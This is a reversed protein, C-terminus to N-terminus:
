APRPVRAPGPCSSSRPRVRRVAAGREARVDGRAGASRGPVPQAAPFRAPPCRLARRRAGHLSRRLRRTRQSVLTKTDASMASPGGLQSISSAILPRISSTSGSRTRLSSPRTSWIFSPKLSACHRSALRKRASSALSRGEAGSRTSGTVPSGASSAIRAQATSLPTSTTAVPSRRWRRGSVSCWPTLSIGGCATRASSRALSHAARAVPILALRRNSFGAGRLHTRGGHM